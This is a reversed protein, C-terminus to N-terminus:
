EIVEGNALGNNPILEIEVDHTGDPCQKSRVSALSFIRGIEAILKSVDRGKMGRCQFQLPQSGIDQMVYKRCSCDEKRKRCVTCNTPPGCSCGQSKTYHCHCVDCEMTM